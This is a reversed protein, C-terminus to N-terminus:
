NDEFAPFDDVTYVEESSTRLSTGSVVSTDDVKTFDAEGLKRFWIDSGMFHEPGDYAENSEALYSAYAKSGDPTLRLQAEGEEVNKRMALWDFVQLPVEESVEWSNHPVTEFTEGFNTTRAYFMDTPAADEPDVNNALGYSSIFVKKNQKDEPVCPAGDCAAITGPVSVIRPEIASETANKLLSVNRPREFAGAAFTECKITPEVNLETREWYCSEVGDGKPDTTWTAGGDFSRRIYFDYKDKGNRAAAWNPTFTYGLTVWDGRIQGRHARSETMPTEWSEKLLDAETATWTMLKDYVVKTGDDEVVEDEGGQPALTLTPTVSSMNQVGKLGKANCTRPLTSTYRVTGESTVVDFTYEQEDLWTDCLFNDYKYPNGTKAVCSGAECDPDTWVSLRRLMIDSPRGKGRQGQKYIAILPIGAGDNGSPGLAPKKGQLIFRVRRANETAYRATGDAMGIVIPDKNEDLEPLNLRDGAAVLDPKSFDFSHYFIDKGVEEDVEVNFDITGDPGVGVGKTEEYALIAWASYEGTKSNLYPQLFLNPRSAGTDGDLVSGASTVCVTQSGGSTVVEKMSACNVMQSFADATPTLPSYNGEADENDWGEWTVLNGDADLRCYEHGPTSINDMNCMNNDTLRVPMSMFNLARVRANEGSSDVPDGLLDPDAAEDESGPIDETNIADFDSWKIYSFWVDTKHSTKAGSFGHGPGDGGGAQLGEPDEQWTIAFGASGAGGVFVQYADRVGSTLRESKYIQITGDWPKITARASWLCSYAVQAPNPIREADLPPVPDSSYDVLGQSGAVGYYDPYLKDKNDVVGDGNTDTEALISYRPQGGKCYKDTWAVLIKNGKVQFVPKRSEGLAGTPLGTVDVEKDGTRALNFRKWSLGDDRSIAMFTDPAGSPIRFDVDTYATVLPKTYCVDNGKSPIKQGVLCNGEADKEQLETGDAKTAPVYATMVNLKAKASPLTPTKSVNKRFIVSDELAAALDISAQDLSVYKLNTTDDGDNAALDVVGTLVTELTTMAATLDTSTSLAEFDIVGDTLLSSYDGGDSLKDKLLKAIDDNLQIGNGHQGDKDLSQLLSAMMKVLDNDLDANMLDLPTIVGKGRAGGLKVSGFEFVVDEGDAYNFKGDADTMGSHSPSRYNVGSVPGDFLVGTYATAPTTTGSSASDGSGGSCGALGIALAASVGLTLWRKTKYKHM